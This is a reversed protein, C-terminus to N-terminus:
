HVLFQKYQSILTSVFLVICEQAAYINIVNYNWVRAADLAVLCKNTCMAINCLIPLIWYITGFFFWCGGFFFFWKCSFLNSWATLVNIHIWHICNLWKTRPWFCISNIIIISIFHLIFRFLFPTSYSLFQYITYNSNLENFTMSYPQMFHYAGFLIWIIATISSCFILLIPKLWNCNFLLDKKADGQIAM